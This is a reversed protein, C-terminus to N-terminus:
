GGEAQAAAVDLVGAAARHGAAESHRGYQGCLSAIGRQDTAFGRFMAVLSSPARAAVWAAVLERATDADRVVM